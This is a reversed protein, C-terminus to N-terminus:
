PANTGSPMGPIPESAPVEIRALAELFAEFMGPGDPDFVGPDRGELQEFEDNLGDGDADDFSFVESLVTVGAWDTVSVRYSGPHAITWAAEFPAWNRRVPEECPVWAGDREMLLIMRWIRGGTGPEAHVALNALGHSVTLTPERPPTLLDSHVYLAWERGNETDMARDTPWWQFALEGYRAMPGTFRWVMRDTETFQDGEVTYIAMSGGTSVLFGGRNEWVTPRSVAGYCRWGDESLLILASRAVPDGDEEGVGLLVGDTLPHLATCREGTMASLDAASEPAHDLRTFVESGLHIEYWVGRQLPEEALAILPLCLAALLAILARKM